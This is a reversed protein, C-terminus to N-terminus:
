KYSQIMISIQERYSIFKSLKSTQSGDLLIAFWLDFYSTFCLIEIMKEICGRLLSGAVILNKASSDRHFDGSLEAISSSHAHTRDTIFTIYQATTPPDYRFVSTLKVDLAHMMAHCVENGLLLKTGTAWSWGEAIRTTM